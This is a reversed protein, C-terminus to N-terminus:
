KGGERGVRAMEELDGTGWGDADGCAVIVVPAEEIKGQNFSAWRLRKRQEPSRVVIFRWPQMNYGSPAQLGAEIIKKLDESPIPSGDFSPTARRQAIAQSLTKEMLNAM